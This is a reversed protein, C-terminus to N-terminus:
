NESQFDVTVYKTEDAVDFGINSAVKLEVYNQVYYIVDQEKSVKAKKKWIEPNKNYLTRAQEETFSELSIQPETVQTIRKLTFSAKFDCVVIKQDLVSNIVTYVPIENFCGLHFFRTRGSPKDDVKIFSKHNQIFRDRYFGSQGILIMTPEVKKDKLYTVGKSIAGAIDPASLEKHQTVLLKSVFLSDEKRALRHGLDKEGTSVIHQPGEIFSAKAPGQVLEVAQSPIYSGEAKMDHIEFLRLVRAEKNYAELIREKLNKVLRDDLETQAIEKYQQGERTRQLGEFYTKVTDTKELLINKSEVGLVLQWKEFHKETLKQFGGIENLLYNLQSLEEDSFENKDHYSFGSKIM